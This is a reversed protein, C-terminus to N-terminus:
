EISMYWELYKSITICTAQKLVTIHLLAVRIDKKLIKLLIKTHTINYFFNM